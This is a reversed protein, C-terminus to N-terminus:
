SGESSDGIVPSAKPLFAITRALILLGFLYGLVVQICSILQGWGPEPTITGFSVTLQTLVSFCLIDTFSSVQALCGGVTAYVISFCMMLEFYNVISLLITRLASAIYHKHGKRRFGDFIVLNVNAQIIDYIRYGAIIGFVIAAVKVALPRATNDAYSWGVWVLVALVIELLIFATVYLDKKRSGPKT